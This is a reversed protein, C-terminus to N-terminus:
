LKAYFESEFWSKFAEFVEATRRFVPSLDTAASRKSPQEIALRELFCVTVALIALEEQEIGPAYLYESFASALPLFKKSHFDGMVQKLFAKTQAEATLKNERCLAEWLATGLALRAALYECAFTDAPISVVKPEVDAMHGRIREYDQTEYISALLQRVCIALSHSHGQIM